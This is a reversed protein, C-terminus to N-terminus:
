APLRLRMAAPTVISVPFADAVALLDRDSTVLADARGALALELFPRDSPDRCAPVAPRPQPITVAECWPLYDALLDDRDTAALAFKPHALVRLLEAATDRGVLPRIAGGQWAIRLWTMASGRFLLASLLVNTDLVLRPQSM